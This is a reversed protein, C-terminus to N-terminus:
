VEKHNDVDRVEKFVGMIEELISQLPKVAGDNDYLSM